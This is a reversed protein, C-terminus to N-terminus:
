GCRRSATNVRPSTEPRVSRNAPAAVRLADAPLRASQGQLVDRALERGLGGRPQLSRHTLRRDCGADGGTVPALEALHVARQGTATRSLAMRIM